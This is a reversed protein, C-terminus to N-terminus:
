AHLLYIMAAASWAQPRCSEIYPLPPVGGNRPYGGVLEPLRLDPSQLGLAVLAERVRAVGDRDGYRKLGAAFLATDHPWVSGNHYSLPNYRAEASGLTRLGYGSWLDPEFLREILTAARAQPVIGTWLLHGSDSSNVDLQRGDADLGLAYNRHDPMWFQRDFSDALAAASEQWREQELASGDCLKSLVAAANTAAFVYGQVEAVALAGGALTGDSYSMSDQSDKWSQITLGSGDKRQRFNILGRADSYHAIWGMAARWNPELTRALAADGTRAVYDALLIVFLPTSDASGYYTRFPLEGIRSLESERHEHLIKGPEEDRFGDILRGQRAALYSLVSKALGPDVDLLLWATILSDRGFPVVFNPIGAVIMRGQETDVTLSAVDTVAQKLLRAEDASLGQHRLTPTWTGPIRQTLNAAPLDTLFRANVTITHRARPALVLVDGPTGGTVVVETHSVVGDQATYAFLWGGPTHTRKVPEAPARRQHGRAEFVDIFDAELALLLPLEIANDGSNEIELRDFFGSADLTFSRKILLVQAHDVLRSHFQVIHDAGVTQHILDTEPFSWVYHSLHRTDHLFFGARPNAAAEATGKADLIAYCFDNKLPIM